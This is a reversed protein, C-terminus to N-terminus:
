SSKRFSDWASRSERRPRPIPSRTHTSSFRSASVSYRSHEFGPSPVLAPTIARNHAAQAAAPGSDRRLPKKVTQVVGTVKSTGLTRGTMNGYVREAQKLLWWQAYIALAFTAALSGIQGLATDGLPMHSVVLTGVSLIFVAALRGLFSTVIVLAMIQQFRHKFGDSLPTLSILPMGATAAIVLLIDFGLFIIVLAGGLILLIVIGLIDGFVNHIHPMLLVKTGDYQSVSLSQTVHEGSDTMWNVLAFWAPAAGIAIAAILARVLRSTGTPRLALVLLCYVSVAAIFLVALGVSNGYLYDLWAGPIPRHPQVIFTNISSGLSNYLDEFKGQIYGWPDTLWKPLHPVPIIGAVLYTGVPM